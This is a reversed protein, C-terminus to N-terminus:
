SRRFPLQTVLDEIIVQLVTIDVYTKAFFFSNFYTGRFFTAGALFFSQPPLEKKREGGQYSCQFM